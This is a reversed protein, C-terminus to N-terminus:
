TVAVAIFPMFAQLPLSSFNGTLVPGNGTPNQCAVTTKQSIPATPFPKADTVPHQPFLVLPCWVQLLSSLANCSPKPQLHTLLSLSMTYKKHAAESPNEEGLFVMESRQCWLDQLGQSHSCVPVFHDEKQAPRGERGSPHKNCLLKCPKM